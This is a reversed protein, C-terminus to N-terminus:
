KIRCSSSIGFNSIGQYFALAIEWSNDINLFDLSLETLDSCVRYQTYWDCCFCSFTCLIRVFVDSNLCRRVKGPEAQVTELLFNQRSFCQLVNFMSILSLTLALRHLGLCSHRHHIQVSNKDECGMFLIRVKVRKIENKLPILFSYFFHQAM